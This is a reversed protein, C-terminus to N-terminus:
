VSRAMPPWPRALPSKAPHHGLDRSHHGRDTAQRKDLLAAAVIGVRPAFGGLGRDAGRFPIPHGARFLLGIESAAVARAACDPRRHHIALGVVAEINGPDLVVAQEFFDRARIM